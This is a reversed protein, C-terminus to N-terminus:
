WHFLLSSSKDTEFSLPDLSSDFLDLGQAIQQYFYLLIPQLRNKNEKLKEEIMQRDNILQDHRCLHFLYDSTSKKQQTKTQCVVTSTLLYNKIMPTQQSSTGIITTSPLILDLQDSDFRQTTKENSNFYRIIKDKIQDISDCDLISLHFRFYNEYDITLPFSRYQLPFMLLTSSSISNSSRNLIEDRPSSDLFDILIRLFDDFLHFQHILDTKKKMLLSSTCKWLSVDRTWPFSQYYQSHFRFLYIYSQFLNSCNKEILQDTFAQSFPKMHLLDYFLEM